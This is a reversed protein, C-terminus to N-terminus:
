KNDIEFSDEDDFGRPETTLILYGSPPAEIIFQRAYTKRQEPDINSTLEFGLYEMLFDDDTTIERYICLNPTISRSCKVDGKKLKLFGLGQNKLFFMAIYTRAEKDSKWAKILVSGIEEGVIENLFDKLNKKTEEHLLRRDEQELLAQSHTDSMPEEKRKLIYESVVSLYTM